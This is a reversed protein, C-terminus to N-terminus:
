EIAFDLISCFITITTDSDYGHGPLYKHGSLSVFYKHFLLSSFLPSRILTTWFWLDPWCEEEENKRRPHIKELQEESTEDWKWNVLRRVFVFLHLTDTAFWQRSTTNAVGGEKMEGKGSERGCEKKRRADWWREGSQAMSVDENTLEKWFTKMLGKWDKWRRQHRSLWWRIQDVFYENNGCNIQCQYRM